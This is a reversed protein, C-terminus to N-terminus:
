LEGKIIMQAAIILVNTPGILLIAVFFAAPPTPAQHALASVTIHMRPAEQQLINGEELIKTFIADPNSGEKLFLTDTNHTNVHSTISIASAHPMVRLAHSLAIRRHAEQPTLAVVSAMEPAKIIQTTLLPEPAAVFIPALLLGM